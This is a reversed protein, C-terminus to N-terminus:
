ERHPPQLFLDIANKDSANEKAREFV